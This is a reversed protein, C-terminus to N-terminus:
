ANRGRAFFEARAAKLGALAAADFDVEPLKDHDWYNFADVGRVLAASPKNGGNKYKIQQAHPPIYHISIGIRRDDSNNPESSHVISEHHISFEGAELNMHVAKSADVDKITQGRVLMNHQDPTEVFEAQTRHSGPIVRVSGSLVNSTSFAFWATATCAPDIGYYYSDQHWSVYRLDKAGKQFFASGWCLINPGILDEVADLIRPHTVIDAIFKFPLHAKVKLHEQAEGGVSREFDELKRRAEAAQATTLARMPFVFGDRHYQEIQAETLHKPMQTEM